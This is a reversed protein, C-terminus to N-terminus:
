GIATQRESNPERMYNMNSNQRMGTFAEAHSGASYMKFANM